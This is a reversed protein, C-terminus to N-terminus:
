RVISTTAAFGALGLDSNQSVSFNITQGASFLDTSINAATYIYSTAATITTTRKVNGSGDSITLTYAETSQDLPVDTGNAWQYLVRARRFWTLTIDNTASISGKNARFLHPALPKACADSVTDQYTSAPQNAFINLLHPEYYLTNGYDSVNVQHRALANPDLLVFPEGKAHAAIVFETGARGRLLGSLAWTNTGTQVANRFLIIEGGVYAANNGLLFNSYSVSSLAGHYLSVNLVSLEDPTNGGQYNALVNTTYGIVSSRVIRTLQSYSSGDRSVDVIAGPWNDALGCAALYLGPATDIDRLPPIDLIRLITPGAYDIPPTSYGLAKGGGATFTGSPYIDPQELQCEWQLGGQGDFVCRTIRVIRMSGDAGQLNMVDGPEYQLYALSTALQYSKRGVWAAWLMTQARLRADDDALVITAQATVDKNSATDPMFATQTNQQYDTGFSSYTFALTRPLDVEQAIQETIPTTNADDGIQTSAGLDAYYFTGIPQAGRRVFKLKNDTDNADVFYASMLPALNARPSSHNAVAYGIVQDTLGSVDYQSSVLGARQCVDSVIDSLPQKAPTLYPTQVYFQGTGGYRTYYAVSNYIRMDGTTGGTDCPIGTDVLASGNWKQVTPGSTTLYLESDSVFYGTTQLGFFANTALVAIFDGGLTLKVLAQPHPDGTDTVIYIYSGSVGVASFLGVYSGQYYSGLTPNWIYVANPISAVHLSGYIIGGKKVANGNNAWFTSAPGGFGAKIAVPGPEYYTGDTMAIGDDGDYNQFRQWPQDFTTHLPSGLLFETVGYPSTRFAQVQIFSGVQGAQWGYTNGAEDIRVITNAAFSDWAPSSQYGYQMSVTYNATATKFVEFTLSPMYNGWSSLDLDNFVVYALGRFPPTNAVGEAAQITPDALQNEDGVYLKFNQVMQQSGSIAEFNSPNSMDYILKGNAWIRRLGVIPGECIGVAFSLTVITQSPGGGKGGESHQRAQGCWIVNGAGRYVGYYWPIPKGYASDQVRLDGPAPGKQHTLLAGAIGGIAFGLEAGAATGLGPVVFTGILGGIVAGAVSLALQM